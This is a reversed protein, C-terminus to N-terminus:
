RCNEQYEVIEQHIKYWDVNKHLDMNIYKKDFCQYIKYNRYNCEIQMIGKKWNPINGDEKKSGKRYNPLSKYFYEVFKGILGHKKLVHEWPEPLKDRIYGRLGKM